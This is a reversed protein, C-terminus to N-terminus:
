KTFAGPLMDKFIKIKQEKNRLFPSLSFTYISRKGLFLFICMFVVQEQIKKDQNSKVVHNRKGEGGRKGGREGERGGWGWGRGGGVGVGKRLFKKRV